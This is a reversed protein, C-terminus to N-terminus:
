KTHMARWLDVNAYFKRIFSNKQEGTLREVTAFKRTWVLLYRVEQNFILNNLDFESIGVYFLRNPKSCRALLLDCNKYFREVYGQTFSLKFSGKIIGSDYYLNTEYWVEPTYTIGM